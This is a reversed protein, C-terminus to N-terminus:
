IKSVTYHILQVLMRSRLVLATIATGAHLTSSQYYFYIGIPPSHKSGPTESQIQYLTGGWIQIALVFLKLEINIVNPNFPM